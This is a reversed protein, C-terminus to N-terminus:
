QMNRLSIIYAILDDRDQGTVVLNPMEAHPTQLFVSLARDNIGALQSVVSFPTAEPRPSTTDSPAVAHCQACIREAYARGRQVDGFEASTAPVSCLVLVFIVAAALNALMTGVRHDASARCVVLVDACAAGSVLAILSNLM